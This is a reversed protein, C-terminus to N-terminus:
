IELLYQYDVYMGNDAATNSYLEVRTTGNITLDGNVVWIGDPDTGQTFDQDYVKRETDFINTYIRITIIAGSTLRSEDVLLSKLIKTKNVTGIILLNAGSSGSTATGSQWSGLVSGSYERIVTKTSGSASAM